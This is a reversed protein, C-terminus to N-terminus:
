TKEIIYNIFYNLLYFSAYSISLRISIKSSEVIDIESQKIFNYLLDKFSFVKLSSSNIKMHRFKLIKSKNWKKSNKTFRKIKFSNKEKNYELTWRRDDNKKGQWTIFEERRHEYIYGGILIKLHM